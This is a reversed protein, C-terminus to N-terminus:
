VLDLERARAVAQTRSKVALKGYIHNIHSKVTSVAIVLERAIEQNSLGAAVLRLVEFERETLPEILAQAAPSAAPTREEYAVLLKRVYGPAIGQTLARRLLRAMPEGEDVFTRVYGGPEALSLARELASLAQDGDGVMQFALAQLVLITVTNEVRGTAKAAELQRQLLDLAERVRTRQSPRDALASAMLERARALHVLEHLYNTGGDTDPLQQGQWDTVPVRDRHTMRLRMRWAAVRALVYPNGCRQAAQEAKAMTRIAQEIEARALHVQALIFRGAPIAEVLGGLEIIEIGQEANHMASDLDDWEYHLRSLGIYSFGASPAPTGGESSALELARRQINAAEHLRGQMQLAEGLIGRAFVALYTRGAAESLRITKTLAQIAAAPNGSILADNGLIVAAMGRSFWKREPLYEFVQQAFETALSTEDHLSAVYARVAAVEGPVQQLDVGQLYPEVSELEGGLALAWAYLMGLQPRSRMLEEPLSDLWGRLTRVEGRMVTTWATWEILDAAREDDGAELAHGVAEPVFGNQEYWKSARRHLEPVLDGKERQVRQRLLDAFLRHYRYWRREEDLPVLFLNSAELVELLQQSDAGQAVATGASSSPPEAFDLRVATGASSSPPEAFGFRVHDCLSGTLRDLMATELLFRQIEEPQQNLVEDTLYDLVYRQSGTFAAIFASPDERGRISLAALQLGTIWGETRRELAAVQEAPLDLRMVENLFAAAEDPSFRLDAAYLECLQGRGRLLAIPLPPDARSTLVLHMQPPLHDLLFTIAEHISSAEILHYDDLVLVFQQGIEAVDNALCTLLLEQPPPQPAQLMAQSRQGTGPEIMHLAALVYACLRVPDNDGEDLSIWASPRELQQLWDAVLTTKGFGAPASILTLKGSLGENLRAILAARPVRKRRTTPVFLKTQLIPHAPM